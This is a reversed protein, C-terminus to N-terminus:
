IILNYYKWNAVLQQSYIIIILVYCLFFFTIGIIKYNNAYKSFWESLFPIVILLLPFIPLYMYRDAMVAPRTMPIIQLVLCIEFAFFLFCFLYYYKYKSRKVMYGVFLFFALLVFPYIIMLLPMSEDPQIPYPYHYHLGIPIIFSTLYFNLCYFSLAIRKLIPYHAIPTFDTSSLNNARYTLIAFCFTIFFMLGTYVLYNEFKLMVKGEKLKYCLVFSLFIFPTVISQEKCFCSLLFFFTSIIFSFHRNNEFGNIFYLFSLLSFFCFWGIKVAAIWTTPEVNLPHIGWILAIIYANLVKNPIKFITMLKYGLMGIIAVNLCHQIFSFLHYYYPDYGNIKYVLHYYLTILPSYQNDNIATFVKYFYELSYAEPRVEINKLLMWTDDPVAFELHTIPIYVITLM